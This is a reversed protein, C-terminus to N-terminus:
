PTSWSRKVGVTSCSSSAVSADCPMRAGNTANVPVISGRLPRGVRTSANARTAASLRGSRRTSAPRRRNPSRDRARRPQRSHRASARAAGRSGGRTPRRVTTGGPRPPRTGTTPRPSRTSRARPARRRRAREDGGGAGREVLHDAVGRDLDSGAVDVRQGVRQALRELGVNGRPQSGGPRRAGGVEGPLTRDVPVDVCVPQRRREISMRARAHLKM